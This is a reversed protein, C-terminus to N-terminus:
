LSSIWLDHHSYAPPSSPLPLLPPHQGRGRQRGRKYVRVGPDARRGTHLPRTTVKIPKPFKGTMEGREKPLMLLISNQFIRCEPLM